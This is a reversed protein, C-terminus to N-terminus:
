SEGAIQGKMETPFRIHNLVYMLVVDLISYVDQCEYLEPPAKSSLQKVQTESASYWVQVILM